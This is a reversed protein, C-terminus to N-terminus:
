GAEEGELEDVEGAGVGTLASAAADGLGSNDAFGSVACPTVRGPNLNIDHGFTTDYTM